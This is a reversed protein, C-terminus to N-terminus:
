SSGIDARDGRGGIQTCQGGSCVLFQVMQQVTMIKRIMVYVNVYVYVYVYVFVYVYVYVCLYVYVCVCVCMCMYMCLTHTRHGPNFQM